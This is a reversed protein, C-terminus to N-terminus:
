ETSPLILNTGLTLGLDGDSSTFHPLQIDARSAVRTYASAGCSSIWLLATSLLQRIMAVYRAVAVHVSLDLNPIPFTASVYWM